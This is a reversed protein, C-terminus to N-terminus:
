PQLQAVLRPLVEIVRDVEAETTAPGLSFRIGRRAEAAGLGMALLVHSPEAAGSACASGAAACIGAADLLMLLEESDTTDFVVHAIGAIVPVGAGRHLTPRAGCRAALLGDVLRDRLAAVRAVTERRGEALAVFAAAMGVVAAVDVTGPRRGREQAGGFSVPHWPAGRRVVLVGAGHPGGVKHAAVSVLDCGATLEAVDLWPAGAVADCHVAAGPAHRRVAAVVEAVPQVTGVENNAAMVSVVSVDPTLVGELADLDISGTADVQVTGGGLVRCPGLVAAHEVASCWVPGPRAAHAGFVALNDAETGGSTFVVESPECGLLEAMADRADDVARRARRALRHSGSPNAPAGSLWPWMADLAASSLPSTAAHDLYVVHDDREATVVGRDLALAPNGPVLVGM